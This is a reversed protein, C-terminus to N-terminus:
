KFTFNFCMLNDIKHRLKKCSWYMFNFSAVDQKFENFKFTVDNKSQTSLASFKSNEIAIVFKMKKHSFWFSKQFTANKSQQLYLKLLTDIDQLHLNINIFHKLLDVYNIFIYLICLFENMIIENIKMWLYMMMLL